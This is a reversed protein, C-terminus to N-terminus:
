RANLIAPLAPHKKQHWMSTSLIAPSAMTAIGANRPLFLLRGPFGPTANVAIGPQTFCITPIGAQLATLNSQMAIRANPSDGNINEYAYLPHALAASILVTFLFIMGNKTNM